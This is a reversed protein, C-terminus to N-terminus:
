ANIINLFPSLILTYFHRYLLINNGSPKQSETGHIFNNLDSSNSPTILVGDTAWLQSLSEVEVGDVSCLRTLGSSGPLAESFLSLAQEWSTISHRDLFVTVKKWPWEGTCIVTFKSPQSPAISSHRTRRRRSPSIQGDEVETESPKAFSLKRACRKRKREKESESQLGTDEVPHTQPSPLAFPQDRGRGRAQLGRSIDLLTGTHRVKTGSHWTPTRVKSYGIRKFPETSACVYVKQNQFQDLSTVRHGTEPTYIYRVGAPLDISRSLESLLVEWHRFNRSSVNVKIGEFFRDGNKMFTVTRPQYLESRYTSIISERRALEPLRSVRRHHGQAQHQQLSTEEFRLIRPPPRDSSSEAAQELPPLSGLEEGRRLRRQM